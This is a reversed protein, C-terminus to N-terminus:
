SCCLSPKFYTPLNTHSTHLASSIRRDALPGMSSMGMSVSSRKYKIICSLSEGLYLIHPHNLFFMSKNNTHPPPHLSTQPPECTSTLPCSWPTLEREDGGTSDRSHFDPWRHLCCTSKLAAGGWWGPLSAKLSRLILFQAVHFFSLVASLVLILIAVYFLKTQLSICLAKRTQAPADRQFHLSTQILLLRPFLVSFLLM